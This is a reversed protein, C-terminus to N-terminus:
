KKKPTEKGEIYANFVPVKIEYFCAAESLLGFLSNRIVDYSM